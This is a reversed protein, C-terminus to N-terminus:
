ALLCHIYLTNSTVPVKKTWTDFVVLVTVKDQLGCVCIGVVIFLLCGVYFLTQIELVLLM